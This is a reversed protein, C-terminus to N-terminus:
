GNIRQTPMHWFMHHNVPHISPEHPLGKHLTGVRLWRAAARQLLRQTHAHTNTSQPAKSNDQLGWQTEAVDHVSRLYFYLVLTGGLM